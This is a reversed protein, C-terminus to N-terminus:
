KSDGKKHRILLQPFQLKYEGNIIVVGRRNMDSYHESDAKTYTKTKLGWENGRDTIGLIEFQEPCFKDVFSIPVGIVGDYDSPIADIHPVVIANYNDYRRYGVGKIEKHRSYKINDTKTM